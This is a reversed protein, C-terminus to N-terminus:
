FPGPPNTVLFLLPSTGPLPVSVPLFTVGVPPELQSSPSASSPSHPATCHGAPPQAPQISWSSRREMGKLDLVCVVDVVDGICVQIQGLLLLSGRPGGLGIVVRLVGANLSARLGPRLVGEGVGVQVHDVEVPAGLLGGGLGLRGERLIGADLDLPLSRVASPELPRDGRAKKDWLCHGHPPCGAWDRSPQTAYAGPGPTLTAGMQGAGKARWCKWPAVAGVGQVVAPSQRQRVVSPGTLVVAPSWSSNHRQGDRMPRPRPRLSGPQRRSAGPGARGSSSSM